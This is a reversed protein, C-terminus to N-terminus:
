IEKDGEKIDKQYTQEYYLQRQEKLNMFGRMYNMNSRKKTTSFNVIKSGTNQSNDEGAKIATRFKGPNVM